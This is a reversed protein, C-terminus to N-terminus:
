EEVEVPVYYETQVPVYYESEVPVYASDIPMYETPIYSISSVPVGNVIESETGLASGTIDTVGNVVGNAVSGVAGAAGGVISEAAGVTGNVASGVAEATGGVIDNIFQSNIISYQVLSLIMSLHLITKQNIM